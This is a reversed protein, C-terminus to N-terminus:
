QKEGTYITAIGLTLSTLTTNIFGINQLINIFNQKDPFNYVTDPLYKYATDNKTILRGLIPLINKFYFKYLQKVPFKAPKSFELIVVMGGKKLVRLMEALGKDLNEFNRVGFAIIVADFSEDEFPLNEADGYMLKIINELKNKKIKEEGIALMKSSIDIGIINKPKLITAKIALDATGTAIDLIKEPHHNLLKAITKNRWQKDISLSLFHNLFDYHKSINDFMLSVQKKNKEQLTM